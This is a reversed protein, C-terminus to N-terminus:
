ERRAPRMLRYGSARFVLLLGALFCAALSTWAMWWWGLELMQRFVPEMRWLAGRPPRWRASMVKLAIGVSAPIGALVVLRAWTPGKGLAVWMAVLSVLALCDGVMVVKPVSSWGLSSFVMLDLGQALGLAPVLAATWVLMHGIGFQLQRHVAATGRQEGTQEVLELRAGFVRVLACIGVVVVSQFLLVVGWVEGQRRYGLCAYAVMAGAVLVAPLRWPWPGAGLMGWIALLAVQGSILAFALCDAPNSYSPKGYVVSFVLIDVLVIAWAFVAWRLFSHKLNSGVVFALLGVQCVFLAYIFTVAPSSWRQREGWGLAWEDIAAIAAPLAVAVLFLRLPHDLPRVTNAQEPSRSGHMM